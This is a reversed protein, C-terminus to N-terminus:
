SRASLDAALVGAVGGALRPVHAQDPRARGAVHRRPRRDGGTINDVDAEFDFEPAHVGVIEFGDAHHAAYLEQLHPLTAKCNSCAFTWFQVAVVQGRLEELSTVDSQLWGAIDTLPEHVGRDPLDPPHVDASTSPVSSAAPRGDPAGSGAGADTATGDVSGAPRAVVAFAVVAVVVLVFVTSM